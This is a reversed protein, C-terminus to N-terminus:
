LNERENALQDRVGEQATFGFDKKRQMMKVTAYEIIDRMDYSNSVRASEVRRNSNRYYILGNAVGAVEDDVRCIVPVDQFPLVRIVVYPLGQNDVPFSVTFNVHPDAFRTMQDRMEDIKYTQKNESSVGQRILTEDEIGIIIYGGDRVNTMALIDKALSKVLWPMNRKFELTPSEPQGEIKVELEETTM